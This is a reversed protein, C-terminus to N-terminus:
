CSKKLWELAAMGGGIVGNTQSDSAYFFQLDQAPLPQRSRLRVEDELMKAPFDQMTSVGGGILVCDPDLISIEAALPYAYDKVFKTILPHNGHKVFVEGIQCDPFEREILKSLYFGSCRTEACGVSGCNCVDEVGYLPIHGLEGAVGHKGAYISGNIYLANGLGTGLYFGLITRNREPDLNMAYIDHTLLFEVDHGIYVPVSLAAKIRGGLDTAQLGQIQPVSYVYSRDRSVQGPIGIAIAAVGEEGAMRKLYDQIEAILNLVADSGGLVQQSPRREFGTLEYNSDVLGMRINTGGIDISLVKMNDM